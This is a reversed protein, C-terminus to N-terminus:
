PIRLGRHPAWSTKVCVSLYLFPVKRQPFGIIHIQLSSAFGNVAHLSPLFTMGGCSSSHYLPFQTSTLTVSFNYISCIISGM